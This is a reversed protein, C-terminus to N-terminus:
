EQVEYFNNEEFVFFFRFTNETQVSRVAKGILRFVADFIELVGSVIVIVPVDNINRGHPLVPSVAFRLVGIYVVRNWEIRGIYGTFIRHAIKSCAIGCLGRLIGQHCMPRCRESSAQHTMFKIPLPTVREEQTEHYTIANVRM